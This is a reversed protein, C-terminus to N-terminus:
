QLLMADIARLRAYRSAFLSDDQDMWWLVAEATRRIQIESRCTAGKAASADFGAGQIYRDVILGCWADDTFQHQIAVGTNRPIVDDTHGAAIATIILGDRQRM